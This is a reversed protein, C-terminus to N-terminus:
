QEVALKLTELGHPGTSTKTSLTVSAAQNQYDTGCVVNGVADCTYLTADNTM